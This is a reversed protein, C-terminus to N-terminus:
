KNHLLHKTMGVRQKDVALQAIVGNVYLDITSFPYM